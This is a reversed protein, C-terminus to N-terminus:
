ASEVKRIPGPPRSDRSFFYKGLYVVGDTSFTSLTKLWVAPVRGAVSKGEWLKQYELANSVSILSILLNLCSAANLQALYDGTRFGGDTGHHLRRSLGNREEGKNLAVRQERRFIPDRVYDLLYNTKVIRGLDQWAHFVPSKRPLSAIKRVLISPRVKGERMTTVTRLMEDWHPVIRDFSVRGAFVDGLKRYDERAMGPALWLRQEALDAIKPALRIGLLHCMAMLIETYGHSDSFSTEIRLSSGHGLLGDLVYGAERVTVPIVQTYFPMQLDSVHTMVVIGRKYGPFYRPNYGAYLSEGKVEFKQGDHSATKGEGWAKSIALGRQFDVLKAVAAQLTEERLYQEAAREIKWRTMGEISNALTATGHNFGKALIASFLSTREEWDDRPVARGSGLHTFCDLYGTRRDLDLLIDEIRRTPVNRRIDNCVAEHAAPVKAEDLPTVIIRGKELRVGDKQELAVLAGRAVEGMKEQLTGLHKEPDALIPLAGVLEARRAKWESEPMLDKDLSEFHSSGPVSLVGGKLAETVQEALCMEWAKRAVRGRPGIVRDRWSRPVFETPADKPLMLRRRGRMERFYEIGEIIPGSASGPELDVSELFIATANKVTRHRRLLFDWAGKIGPSAFAGAQEKSTEFKGLGFRELLEPGIEEPAGRGQIVVDCIDCLFAMLEPVREALRETNKLLANKAGRRARHLLAGHMYTLWDLIKKHQDRVRLYLLGHRAERPLNQLADVGYVQARRALYAEMGKDLATPNKLDVRLSEIRRKRAALDELNDVRPDGPPQSIWAIATLGGPQDPYLLAQLRLKQLHTLRGAVSALAAELQVHRTRRIQRRLSAVSPFLVRETRLAAEVARLIADEGVGRAAGERIASAVLPWDSKRFPRVGLAGLLEKEHAWRTPRREPLKPSTAELGLQESVYRVAQIPARSVDVLLRGIMSVAGAQVGWGVRVEPERVDRLFRLVAKSLHFHRVVERESANPPLQELGTQFPLDSFSSQSM